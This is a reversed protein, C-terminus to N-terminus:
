DPTQLGARTGRRGKERGKGARPLLFVTSKDGARHSSDSSHSKTAAGNAHSTQVRGALVGRNRAPEKWGWSGGLSLQM